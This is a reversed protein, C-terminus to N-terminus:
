ELIDSEGPIANTLGLDQITDFSGRYEVDINLGFMKNIQECAQKRSNLRSYRSAVTGGQNRIVEDTILREKKVINVNSIDSFM